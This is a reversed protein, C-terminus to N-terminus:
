RPLYEYCPVNFDTVIAFPGRSEPCRLCFRMKNPDTFPTQRANGRRYPRPSNILANVLQQAAMDCVVSCSHQGRDDCRRHFHLSTGEWMLQEQDHMFPIALHVEDVAEVLGAGPGELGELLAWTGPDKGELSGIVKCISASACAKARHVLFRGTWALGLFGRVASAMFPSIALTDTSSDELYFLDPGAGDMRGLEELARAAHGTYQVEIHSPIENDRPFFYPNRFDLYSVRVNGQSYDMWGWCKWFSSETLNSARDGLLLDLLAFFTGRQISSGAIVIWVPRPLRLLEERPYVHYHCTEPVWIWGTRVCPEPTHFCRVWRGARWGADRCLEPPYDISGPWASGNAAAKDVMRKAVDADAEAADQPRAPRPRVLVTYPSGQIARYRHSNPKGHTNSISEVYMKYLGPDMVHFNATWIGSANRSWHQPSFASIGYFLVRVLERSAPDPAEGAEILFFEANEGVTLNRLGVVKYEKVVDDTYRLPEYEQIANVSGNNRGHEDIFTKFTEYYSTHSDKESNRAGLLELKNLKTELEKMQSRLRQVESKASELEKSKIKLTTNNDQLEIKNAKQQLEDVKM